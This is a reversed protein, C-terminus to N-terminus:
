GRYPEITIEVRRNLPEPTQDPTPVKLFEEGHGRTVIRAPELGERILLDAVADARERSLELNREHSGTTDTFGDVDIHTDPYRRLVNAIVHVTEQARQEVSASNPAFWIDDGVSLIVAQDKRAVSIGSNALDNRLNAEERDQVADVDTDNFSQMQPASTQDPYNPFGGNQCAALALTGAFVATIKMTAHM